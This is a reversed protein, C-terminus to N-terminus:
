WRMGGHHHAVQAPLVAGNEDAAVYGAMQLTLVTYPTGMALSQDHFTTLAIAPISQQLTPLEM